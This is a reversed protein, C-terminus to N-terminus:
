NGISQRRHLEYTKRAQESAGMCILAKEMMKKRGKLRMWERISMKTDSSNHTWTDLTVADADTVYLAATYRVNFCIKDSFHLSALAEVRERWSM